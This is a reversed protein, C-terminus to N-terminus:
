SAIHICINEQNEIIEENEQFMAKIEPVDLPNIQWKQKDNVFSGYMFATKRRDLRKRLTNPKIQLESALDDVERYTVPTRAGEEMDRSTTAYFPYRILHDDLGKLYEQVLEFDEIGVTMWSQLDQKVIRYLPFSEVLTSARLRTDQTAGSSSLKDYGKPRFNKASGIQSELWFQLVEYSTLPERKSM